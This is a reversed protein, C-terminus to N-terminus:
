SLSDLTEVILASFAEVTKLQDRMVDVDGFNRPVAATDWIVLLKCPDQRALIAQRALRETVAEEADMKRGATFVARAYAERQLPGPILSPEHRRQTQVEAM